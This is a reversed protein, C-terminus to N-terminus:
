GPAQSQSCMRQPTQCRELLGLTCQADSRLRSAEVGVSDAGTMIHCWCVCLCPVNNEFCPNHIAPCCQSQSIQMLIRSQTCPLILNRMHPLHMLLKTKVIPILTIKSMTTDVHLLMSVDNYCAVVGGSSLCANCMWLLAHHWPLQWNQDNVTSHIVFRLRIVMHKLFNDAPYGHLCVCNWIKVASKRYFADPSHVFLSQYQAPCPLSKSNLSNSGSTLDCFTTMLAHKSEFSESFTESRIDCCLTDLM